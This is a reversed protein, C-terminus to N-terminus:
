RRILLEQRNINFTLTKQTLQDTFTPNDDSYFGNGNGAYGWNYHYFPGSVYGNKSYNYLNLFKEPDHTDPCDELAWLEYVLHLNNKQYGDCVWAHGVGTGVAEGRM